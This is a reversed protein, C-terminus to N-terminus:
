ECGECISGAVVWVGTLNVWLKGGRGWKRM